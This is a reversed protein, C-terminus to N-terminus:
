RVRVALSRRARNGAADEIRLRLRYRGGALPRRVRLTVEGAVADFTRRAIRRKRRLVRLTITAPESLELRVKVGRSSASRWVRTVRPPTTDEEEAPAPAPTTETTTAGGPPPPPPSTSTSTTTGGGGGGSGPVTGADDVHVRGRMGSTPSGHVDCFFVYEGPADFTRDTSWDHFGEVPQGPAGDAWNLDHYGMGGNHITVKEGPRVAVDAPVFSSGSTSVTQDAALAPVVAVALGCLGAVPLVVRRM